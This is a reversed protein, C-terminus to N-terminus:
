TDTSQAKEKLLQDIIHSEWESSPQNSGNNEQLEQSTLSEQSNWKKEPEKQCNCKDYKKHKHERRLLHIFDDWGLLAMMKTRSKRFAVVPIRWKDDKYWYLHDQAQKYWKMPSLTEQFKVEIALPYSKEARPSLKIDPGNDGSSTVVADGLELEKDYKLLVDRSEIAAKRGKAKRSAISIAM